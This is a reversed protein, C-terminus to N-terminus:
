VLSGLTDNAVKFGDWAVRCGQATRVRNSSHNRPYYIYDLPTLPRFKFLTELPLQLSETGWISSTKSLVAVRVSGGARSYKGHGLM